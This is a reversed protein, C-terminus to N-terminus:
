RHDEVADWFDNEHVLVLQIGQKRYKVAQEVKRGYCSYAWCPNGEAGIVLYHLDLTVNGSFTGGLEQIVQACQVRTMRESKGTFCFNRERFSVEPCVACVGQITMTEVDSLAISYHGTTRAFDAFFALLDDHERKDIKGDKLVSMVLAELEDYPWCKRLHDHTDMWEQLRSLEGVTIKGDFSIGAMVGQLRQMDATVVDFYKDETTFKECLWLLDSLEDQSIHMDRLAELLVPCLENFPHRAAFEYHELVWGKLMQVEDTSIEGDAAIGKLMGELTHLAKDLRSKGTYRYYGKNDENLM